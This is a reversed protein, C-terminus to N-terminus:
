EIAVFVAFAVVTAGLCGLLRPSTWGWANGFTLALLGLAIAVSFVVAGWWDFREAVAGPAAARATQPLIFWAMGAGILGFPVAIFFVWQWGFGAILFGGVTPGISLGVAQAAGQVGIARGLEGHPVAATIIA